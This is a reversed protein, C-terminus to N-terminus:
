NEIIKDLKKEAKEFFFKRKSLLLSCDYISKMKRGMKLRYYKLGFMSIIRGAPTNPNSILSM